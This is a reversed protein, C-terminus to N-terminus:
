AAPKGYGLKEMLVLLNKGIDYESGAMLDPQKTPNISSGRNFDATELMESSGSLFFTGTYVTQAGNKAEVNIQTRDSRDAVTVKYKKPLIATGAYPSTIEYTAVQLGVATKNKKDIEFKVQAVNENEDADVPRVVGSIRDIKNVFDIQYGRDGSESQSHQKMQASGVGKVSYYSIEYGSDASIVRSLITSGYFTNQVLLTMKVNQIDIEQISKKLGEYSIDPVVEADGAAEGIQHLTDTYVRYYTFLSQINKDNNASELMGTLISKLETGTLMIEIKDCAITKGGIVERANRHIRVDGNGIQDCAKKLIPEAATMLAKSDGTFPKQGSLTDAMGFLPKLEPIDDTNLYFSDKYYQPSQIVARDKNMYGSATMFGEGKYEWNIQAVLSKKAPVKGLKIEFSSNNLIQGPDIKAGGFQTIGLNASSGAQIRASLLYTNFPKPPTAVAALVSLEGSLNQREVLTYYAKTGMVTIYMTRWFVALAVTLILLLGLIVVVLTWAKKPKKGRKGEVTQPDDVQEQPPTNIYYLEEQVDTMGPNETTQDEM